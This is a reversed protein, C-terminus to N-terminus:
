FNGHIIGDFLVYKNYVQFGKLHNFSKEMFYSFYIVSKSAPIFHKDGLFLVGFMSRVTKFGLEFSSPTLRCLFSSSVFFFFPLLFCISVSPYSFIAKSCTTKKFCPFEDVYKSKTVTFAEENRLM